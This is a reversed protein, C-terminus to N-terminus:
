PRTFRTYTIVAGLSLIGLGALPLSSPEPTFTDPTVGDAKFLSLVVYERFFTDVQTDHPSVLFFGSGFISLSRIQDAPITATVQCGYGDCAPSLPATFSFPGATAGAGSFRPILMCSLLLFLRLPVRM